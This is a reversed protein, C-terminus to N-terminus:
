SVRHAGACSLHLLLGESARRVTLQSNVALDLINQIGVTNVRLALQPNREGIASLLTALHVVHTIRSELVIRALSDKDTVDCYIFPGRGTLDQSVRVDSALVNRAGVRQRCLM